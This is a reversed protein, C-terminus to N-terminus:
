AILLFVVFQICRIVPIVGRDLVQQIACSDRGHTRDVVALGRRRYSRRITGFPSERTVRPIFVLLFFLKSAEDLHCQIAHCAHLFSQTAHEGHLPSLRAHCLTTRGCFLRSASSKNTGPSVCPITQSEDNKYVDNAVFHVKGGQFRPHLRPDSPSVDRTSHITIQSIILQTHISLFQHSGPVLLSVIDHKM